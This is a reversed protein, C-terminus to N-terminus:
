KEFRMTALMAEVEPVRRDQARADMPVIASVMRGSPALQFWVISIPPQGAGTCRYFARASPVSGIARSRTEVYTCTVKTMAADAAVHAGNPLGAVFVELPLDTEDYVIRLLTPYAPEELDTDMRLLLADETAGFMRDLSSLLRDLPSGPNERKVKQLVGRIDGHGGGMWPTRAVMTWKGSNGHVTVGDLQARATGAALLLACVVPRAIWSGWAGGRSGPNTTM